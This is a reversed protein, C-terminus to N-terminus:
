MLSADPVTVDISGDNDSANNSTLGVGVYDRLEFTENDILFALKEGPIFKGVGLNQVSFKYEGDAPFSHRVAMGGRTGM